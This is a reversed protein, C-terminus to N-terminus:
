SRTEKHSVSCHMEKVLPRMEQQEVGSGDVVNAAHTELMSRQGPRFRDCPSSSLQNLTLHDVGELM